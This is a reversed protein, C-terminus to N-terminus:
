DVKLVTGQLGVEVRPLHMKVSGQNSHGICDSFFRAHLLAVQASSVRLLHQRLLAKRDTSVCRPLVVTTTTTPKV